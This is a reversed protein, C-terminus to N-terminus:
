HRSTSVGRRGGLGKSSSMPVISCSSRRRVCHSSSVMRRFPGTLSADPRRIADEAKAAGVRELRATSGATLDRPARYLAVPGTEGKTVIFIDGGPTILLAEADHAGDPYSLHFVADVAATTVSPTPEPIRYLTIRKRAADNDGIDAVYLCSGGSCPGVAIAEWDEVNAGTIRVKGTVSGKKDIAFVVPHGSDNHTWLYGSSRRSVALGSAEPLDAMRALDGGPRCGNGSGQAGLPATTILIALGVSLGCLRSLMMM